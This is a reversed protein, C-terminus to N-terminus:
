SSEKLSKFPPSNADDFSKMKAKIRKQVFFDVWKIRSVCKNAIECGRTL